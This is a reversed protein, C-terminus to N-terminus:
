SGIGGVPEEGFNPFIEKGRLSGGRLPGRRAGKKRQVVFHLVEHQHGNPHVSIKGAGIGEKMKLLGEIKQKEGTKKRREINGERERGEERRRLEWPVDPVGGKERRGGGEAKGEEREKRMDGPVDLVTYADLLVDFQSEAVDVLYGGDGVVVEPDLLLFLTPQGERPRGQNPLQSRLRLAQLPPLRPLPSLSPLPLITPPLPSLRTGGLIRIRQKQRTLHKEKREGKGVRWVKGRGRGEEGKREKGRREEGKRERGRGEEGKKRRKRRERRENM